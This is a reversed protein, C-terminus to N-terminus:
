PAFAVVLNTIKSSAASSLYLFVGPMCELCYLMSYQIAQRVTVVHRVSVNFKM